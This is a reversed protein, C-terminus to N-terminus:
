RWRVWSPALRFRKSLRGGVSFTVEGAVVVYMVDRPEGQAFITTGAPYARTHKSNEFLKALNMVDEPTRAARSLESGDQRSCDILTYAM